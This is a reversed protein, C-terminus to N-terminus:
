AIFDILLNLKEDSKKAKRTLVELKMMSCSSNSVLCKLFSKKGDRPVSHKSIFTTYHLHLCVLQGDDNSAISVQFSLLAIKETILVLLILSSVKLPTHLTLWGGCGRFDQQKM